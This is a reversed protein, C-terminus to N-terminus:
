CCDTLFIHLLVDVRKWMEWFEYESARMHSWGHFWNGQGSLPPMQFIICVARSNDPPQPKILDPRRVTFGIGFQVNNIKVHTHLPPQEHSLGLTHESPVSRTRAPYNKRRRQFACTLGPTEWFRPKTSRSGCAESPVCMWGDMWVDVWQDTWRYKWQDTQGDMMGRQRPPLSPPPPSCGPCTM